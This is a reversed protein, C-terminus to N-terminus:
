VAGKDIILIRKAPGSKLIYKEPQKPEPLLESEATSVGLDQREERKHIQRLAYRLLFVLSFNLDSEGM